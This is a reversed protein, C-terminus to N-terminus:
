CVGLMERLCVFQKESIAKTLVDAVMEKTPCYEISIEGAHVKERVFYFRIDLHKARSFYKPNQSFPIAAQNDQLVTVGTTEVVDVSLETLLMKLWLAEQIAATMAMLEAEMTSLAVTSQRKSFWSVVGGGFLVCCGSTSRRNDTDGAFDADSFVKLQLGRDACFELGMGATKKLYRLIRKAAIWHQEGPNNSFRAVESVAHAIDPRITSSLYLLAGVMQRYPVGVMRERDAVNTPSMEKTLKKSVEEPTKVENCGQMRFEELLEDVYRQGTVKLVRNSRDRVVTMGLFYSLEKEESVTFKSAIEAVSKKVEAADKAILLCDDVWVALISIVEGKEDRKIFVCPDLVCQTYGFSLLTARLTQNWARSAQKLGYLAKELRCVLREQGREIFGEPQSMYVEEELILLSTASCKQGSHSFASHLVHKVALDRDSLATVITANKGGTEALLNLDPKHQLMRLATDTGGTLIVVDVDPHSVLQQGGTAGSCPLLQLTRRSVGARWFCECLVHATLVTDSAPKLIVTNGAALAAAVGGCPIAIPFNWPSVV